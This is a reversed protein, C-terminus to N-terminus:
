KLVAWSPIPLQPVVPDPTKTGTIAEILMEGLQTPALLYHQGYQYDLCSGALADNRIHPFLNNVQDQLQRRVVFEQAILQRIAETLEVDTVSNPLPIQHTSIQHTSIQRAPFKVYNRLSSELVPECYKREPSTQRFGLVIARYIPPITQSYQFIDSQLPLVTSM